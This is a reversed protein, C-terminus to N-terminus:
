VADEASEKDLNEHQRNRWTIIPFLEEEEDDRAPDQHKFDASQM